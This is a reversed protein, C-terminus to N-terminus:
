VCAPPGEEAERAILARLFAEPQVGIVLTRGILLAPTGPVGLLRAAARDEAL